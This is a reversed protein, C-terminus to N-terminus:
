KATMASALPSDMKIKAPDPWFYPATTMYDHKDGSPPVESKEVVSPLPVTLAENAAKVLAKLAPQLSEDHAALRSKTEALAGPSVAFYAPSIEAAM